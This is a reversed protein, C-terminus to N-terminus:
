PAKPQAMEAQPASPLITEPEGGNMPEPLAEVASVAVVEPPSAPAVRPEGVTLPGGCTPCVLRADPSVQHGDAWTM